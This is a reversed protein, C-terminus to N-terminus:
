RPVRTTPMLESGCQWCFAATASHLAGCAPCDGTAGGDRLALIREVEGLEGDVRQLEAARRVLVDLRFHDRAAMEYTLGGLDSQREALERALRDRRARLDDTGSDPTPVPAPASQARNFRNSM